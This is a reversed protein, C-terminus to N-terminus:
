FYVIQVTIFQVIFACSKRMTQLEACNQQIQVAQSAIQLRYPSTTGRAVLCINDIGGGCLEAGLMKLLQRRKVNENNTAHRWLIYANYASVDGM